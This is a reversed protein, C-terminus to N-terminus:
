SNRAAQRHLYRVIQLLAPKSRHPRGAPVNLFVEFFAAHQSLNGHAPVETVMKSKSLDLKASICTRPINSYIFSNVCLRRAGLWGFCFSSNKTAWVMSSLLRACILSNTTESAESRDQSFPGGCNTCRRSSGSSPALPVKGSSVRPPYRSTKEAQGGHVSGRSISIWCRSSTVANAFANCFKERWCRIANSNSSSPVNTPSIVSPSGSRESLSPNRPSHRRCSSEEVCAFCEGCAQVHGRRGFGLAGDIFIRTM